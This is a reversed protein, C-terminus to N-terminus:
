GRMGADEPQPANGPLCCASIISPASYVHLDELVAFFGRKFYAYLRRIADATRGAYPPVDTHVRTHFIPSSNM